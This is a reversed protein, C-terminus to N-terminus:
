PLQRSFQLSCKYSYLHRYTHALTCTHLHAQHKELQSFQTEIAPVHGCTPFVRHKQRRWSSAKARERRRGSVRGTEREIERRTKKIKRWKQRRGQAQKMNNICPRQARLWSECCNDLYNLWLKNCLGSPKCCHDRPMGRAYM